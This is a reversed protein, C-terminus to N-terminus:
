ALTMWPVDGEAGTVVAEQVGVVGGQAGAYVAPCCEKEPFM